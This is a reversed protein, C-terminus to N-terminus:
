YLRSLLPNLCSFNGEMTKIESFDVFSRQNPNGRVASLSATKQNSWLNGVILDDERGKKKRIM